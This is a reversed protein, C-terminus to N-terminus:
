KPKMAKSERAKGEKKSKVFHHMSWEPIYSKPIGGWGVVLGHRHDEENTINLAKYLKYVSNVTKEMSKDKAGILTMKAQLLHDVKHHLKWAIECASKKGSEALRSLEKIFDELFFHWDDKEGYIEETTEIIFALADRDSEKIPDIGTQKVIRCMQELARGKYNFDRVDCSNVSSM